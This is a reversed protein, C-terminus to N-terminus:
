RFRRWLYRFLLALPVLIILWPVLYAVGSIAQAVGSVLDRGFERFARAIPTTFSQARHSYLQLAVVQFEVRKLLQAHEGKLSEISSQTQAIESAVKILADVNTRSQERLRLLDGMYSELMRLRQEADVIPKALDNAHTSRSEITGHRAVIAIFPEVGTPSLRARISATTNEAKTLESDLLTCQLKRDDNCAAVAAGLAPEIHEEPVDITASHLRELFQRGGEASDAPLDARTLPAAYRADIGDACGTLFIGFMFTLLFSRSM